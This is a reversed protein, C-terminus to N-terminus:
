PEQNLIFQFYLVIVATALCLFLAVLVVVKNFRCIPRFTQKIIRLELSLHVNGDADTSSHVNAIDVTTNAEGSTLQNEIDSETDTPHTSETVTVLPNEPNEDQTITEKKRILRFSQNKPDIHYQMLIDKLQDVGEVVVTLNITANSEPNLNVTNANDVKVSHTSNLSPNSASISVPAHANKIITDFKYVIEEQRALQGHRNPLYKRLSQGM